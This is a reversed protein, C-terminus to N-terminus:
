HIVYGVFTQSCYSVYSLNNAKKLALIVWVTVLNGDSSLPPSRYNGVRISILNKLNNKELIVIKQIIIGYSRRV